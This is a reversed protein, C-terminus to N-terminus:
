GPKAGGDGDNGDIERYEGEIVSDRGGGNGRDPADPGTNVALTGHRALYRQALRRLGARVPPVLLLFGLADTLFGPTLLLVGAILLCIGDFLEVAPFRNRALSEQMRGLTALGQVRLLGTGLLATLVVVALTPWLGIQGGIEIFLAIEAIPTAILAVLIFLAM